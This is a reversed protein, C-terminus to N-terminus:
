NWISKIQYTTAESRGSFITIKVLFSSGDGSPVIKLRCCTRQKLLVSARISLHQQLHPARRLRASGTSQGPAAPPVRRIHARGPYRPAPDSRRYSRHGKQWMLPARRLRASGTSQGSRSPPAHEWHQERHMVWIDRQTLGPQLREGYRLSGAQTCADEGGGASASRPRQHAPVFRTCCLRRRAPIANM